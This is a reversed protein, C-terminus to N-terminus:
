TCVLSGRRDFRARTKNAAICTRRRRPARGRDGLSGCGARVGYPAITFARRTAANKRAMPMAIAIANRIGPSSGGPTRGHVGAFTSPRSLEVERPGSVIAAGVARV